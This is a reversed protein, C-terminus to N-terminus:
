IGICGAKAIGEKVFTKTVMAFRDSIVLEGAM